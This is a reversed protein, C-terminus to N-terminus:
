RMSAVEASSEASDDESSSESSSMTMGAPGGGPALEPESLSSPSLESESSEMM